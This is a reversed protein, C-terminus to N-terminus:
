KSGAAPPCKETSSYRMCEESTFPRTVRKNAISVLEGLDIAYIQIPENEGSSALFKGDPSWAVSLVSNRQGPLVLLSRGSDPDCVVTNGRFDGIALFRGDRSWDIASVVWGEGTCPALRKWSSGDFINVLDGEVAAIRNGDPSWAIRRGHPQLVQKSTNGSLRRVLSGSNADWVDVSGVTHVVRDLEWSTSVFCNGDPSWAVSDFYQGKVPFFKTPAGQQSISFGSFPRSALLKKGDPSWAIPGISATVETTESGASAAVQNTEFTFVKDGTKPDLAFAQQDPAVAAALTKGDPSLDLDTFQNLQTAGPPPPNVMYIFKGDEVNWKTVQRPNITFIARGDAGWRVGYAYNSGWIARSEASTPSPDWIRASGDESGTALFHGDPSWAIVNIVGQKEIPLRLQPNATADWIVPHDSATAIMDRGKPDWQIANTSEKRTPFPGIRDRGISRLYRGTVSDWIHAEFDSDFAAGVQKGDPSWALCVVSGAHSIYEGRRCRIPFPFSAHRKSGTLAPHYDAFALHPM